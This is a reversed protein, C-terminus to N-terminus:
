WDAEDDSENTNDDWGNNDAAPVSVSEDVDGYNKKVEAKTRLKQIGAMIADESYSEADITEPRVYGVVLERVSPATVKKFEKPIPQGWSDVEEAAEVSHVVEMWGECVISSYPKLNKRIQNALKADAVIFAVPEIANFSVVFGSMVFRGTPKGDVDSEKTIETFVIEQTFSHKANFNEANFDIADNCLSVQGANFDTMRKVDGNKTTYSRYGITGKVFVSMGDALNEKLYKAADYEVLNRNINKGDEDKTLGINVGIPRYDPNQAAFAERQAWPIKKTDTVGDVRKTFYVEPRTFGQVIPWQACKPAYEVGFNAARMSSGSPFSKEAYFNKNKTGTVIGRIEFTGPTERLGHAPTKKAM